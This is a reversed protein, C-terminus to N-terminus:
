RHPRDPLDPVIAMKGWDLYQEIRSSALIGNRPSFLEPEKAKGFIADTTTTWAHLFIPAHRRIPGGFSSVLFSWIRDTSGQLSQYSVAKSQQDPDHRGAGTSESKWKRSPLISLAQVYSLDFNTTHQDTLILLHIHTSPQPCSKMNPVIAGASLLLKVRPYNRGFSNNRFITM